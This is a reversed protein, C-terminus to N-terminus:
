QNQLERLVIQQVWQIVTHPMIDSFASVARRCRLDGGRPSLRPIRTSYSSVLLM